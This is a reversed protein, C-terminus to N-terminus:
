SNGYEQCGALCFNSPRNFVYSFPELLFHRRIQSPIVLSTPLQYQCSIYALHPFCSPKRDSTVKYHHDSFQGGVLPITKHFGGSRSIYTDVSIFSDCNIRWATGLM